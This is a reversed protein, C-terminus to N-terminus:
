FITEIGWLYSLFPDTIKLDLKDIIASNWNRMPVIFVDSERASFPPTSGTEIGWLYSLFKKLRNFTQSITDPKLEEYTRYFCAEAFRKYVAVIETEIGWLYSLFSLLHHWIINLACNWNRMPVIFVLFNIVTIYVFQCLKLEEYTRYFCLSTTFIYCFINPKLEEYTRYFGLNSSTDIVWYNQKLEEYTRYFRPTTTDIYVLNNGNWNRMPVIFVIIYIVVNLLQRLITEIGWLYSLFKLLRFM